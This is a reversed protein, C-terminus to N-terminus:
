EQPTHTHQLESFSQETNCTFKAQPDETVQNQWSDNTETSRQDSNLNQDQKIEDDSTELQCIGEKEAVM